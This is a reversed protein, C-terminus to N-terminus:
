WLAKIKPCTWMKGQQIDECKVKTDATVPSAWSDRATVAHRTCMFGVSDGSRSERRVKAPRSETPM